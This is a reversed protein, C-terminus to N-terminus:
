MCYVSHLGKPGMQTIAANATQLLTELHSKLHKMKVIKGEQGDGNRRSANSFPNLALFHKM